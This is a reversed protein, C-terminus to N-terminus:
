NQKQYEIVLEYVKEIDSRTLIPLQLKNQM